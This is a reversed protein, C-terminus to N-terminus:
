PPCGSGPAAHELEAVTDEIAAYLENGPEVTALAARAERLAEDTCGRAALANALNNRAAAHAPNTALLRRYLTTAGAFDRNALRYGAMAFLVLEDDPWRAFAAAYSSAVAAAPLLPEAGALARVYAGATATAPLLGPEVAVFAWEQARQWSKLFRHASETRRRQTGSRLIVHGADAGVVVAYHWVPVRPLGLNQLVLVPRGSAVEALLAGPDRAIVYPILGHRRTAALLEAQLSGRLGAVYVQNVLDPPTVSTGAYALVTALAAPGCQYETQPFFPVETLEAPAPTPPLTLTGGACGGLLLAALLLSSRRSSIM